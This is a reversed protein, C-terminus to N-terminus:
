LTLKSEICKADNWIAQSDNCVKFTIEDDCAVVNVQFVTTTLISKKPTENSTYQLTTRLSREQWSLSIHIWVNTPLVAYFPFSGGTHDADSTLLFLRM